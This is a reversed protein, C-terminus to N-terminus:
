HPAPSSSSVLACAAPPEPWRPRRCGAPMAKLGVYRRAWSQGSAGLVGYFCPWESSVEGNFDNWVMAAALAIHSFRM